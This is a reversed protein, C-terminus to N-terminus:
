VITLNLEVGQARESVSEDQLCALGGLFLDVIHGVEVPTSCPQGSAGDLDEGSHFITGSVLLGMFMAAQQRHAIPHPECDSFLPTLADLVEHIEDRHPHEPSQGSAQVLRSTEVIKTTIASGAAMLRERRDPHKAASELLVLLSNLGIAKRRAERMLSSMDPFYRFVTGESVGAASALQASTLTSGYEGFLEAAVELIQARREDPALRKRRAVARTSVVPAEGAPLQDDPLPHEDM